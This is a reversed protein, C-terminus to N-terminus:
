NETELLCSTQSSQKLAARDARIFSLLNKASQTYLLTRDYETEPGFVQQLLLGDSGFWRPLLGGFYFGHSRLVQVAKGIHPCAMNLSVQLSLVQKRKAEALMQDVVSRWDAGIEWVAIKETAATAYYKETLSTKGQIPLKAISPFFLRSRLPQSLLHLIASYEQPLYLPSPPDTYEMFNMVCSVRATGARNDEFSIGDLQDLELACDIMGSKAASFQSFYHCCVAEGFLGDSKDKRQLLPSFFSTTLLHSVNTHKYKPTVVLNGAEWLRPNPATQYVSVYGAAHGDATLALVAALTDNRLEQLLLEPHYVYKVPFDEGYASRFVDGVLSANTEDVAAIHFTEDTM